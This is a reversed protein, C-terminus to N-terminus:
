QSRTWNVIRSLYGTAEVKDTDSLIGKEMLLALNKLETILNSDIEPPTESIFAKFPNVTTMRTERIKSDAKDLARNIGLGLNFYWLDLPQSGLRARISAILAQGIADAEASSTRNASDIYINTTTGDSLVKEKPKSVLPSRLEEQKLEEIRALKKHEDTWDNPIQMALINSQFYRLTPALELAALTMGINTWNTKVVFKTGAPPPGLFYQYVLVASEGELVLGPQFEALLAADESAKRLEIPGSIAKASTVKGELNVTIRVKVEGEASVKRAEVPYKPPPLKLAKANLMVEGSSPSVNEPSVQGIVSISAFLLVLFVSFKLRINM